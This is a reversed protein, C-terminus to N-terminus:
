IKKQDKKLNAKKWKNEPGDLVDMLYKDMGETKKKM